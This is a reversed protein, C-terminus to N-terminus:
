TKAEAVDKSQDAARPLADLQKRLKYTNNSVNVFVFMAEDFDNNMYKDLYGLRRLASRVMHSSDELIFPGGGRHIASAAANGYKRRLQSSPSPHASKPILFALEKTYKQWARSRDAEALRCVELTACQQPFVTLPGKANRHWFKAAAHILYEQSEEEKYFDLDQSAPPQSPVPSLM